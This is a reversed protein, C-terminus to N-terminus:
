DRLSRPRSRTWTVSFISVLFIVYWWPKPQRYIETEKSNKKWISRKKSKYEITISSNFRLVCKTQIRRWTWRHQVVVVVAAAFNRSIPLTVFNRAIQRFRHLTVTADSQGDPQGISRYFPTIRVTSKWRQEREKVTDPIAAKTEIEIRWFLSHFFQVNTIKTIDSKPINRPMKHCKSAIQSM